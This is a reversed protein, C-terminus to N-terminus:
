SAIGIKNFQQDQMVSALHETNYILGREYIM